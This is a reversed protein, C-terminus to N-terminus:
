KLATHVSFMNKWDYLARASMLTFLPQNWTPSRPTNEDM